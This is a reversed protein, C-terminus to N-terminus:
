RSAPSPGADAPANNGNHRRKFRSMNRDWDVMARRGVECAIPNHRGMVLDHALQMRTQNTCGVIAM